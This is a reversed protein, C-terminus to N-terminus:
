GMIKDPREREHLSNRSIFVLKCTFTSGPPLYIDEMRFRETEFDWVKAKVELKFEYLPSPDSLMLLRGSSPNSNAYSYESAANETVGGPEMTTTNWSFGSQMPIQFDTLARRYTGGTQGESTTALSSTFVLSKIRNISDASSVPAAFAAVFEHMHISAIAIARNTSVALHDAAFSAQPVSSSVTRIQTTYSPMANQLTELSYTDLIRDFMFRRGQLTGRDFAASSGEKFQLMNFLPRSLKIYYGEAFAHNAHISFRYDADMQVWVRAIPEHSNVVAGAANQFLNPVAQNISRHSNGIKAPVIRKAGSNIMLVEM